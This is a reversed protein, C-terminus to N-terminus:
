FKTKEGAVTGEFTGGPAWLKGYFMSREEAEGNLSALLEAFKIASEKAYGTDGDVSQMLTMRFFHDLKDVNEM